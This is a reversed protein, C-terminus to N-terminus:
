NAGDGKAFNVTFDAVQKGQALGYQIDSPYHIGAYLRSMAAEQAQADFFSASAPFMYDLV